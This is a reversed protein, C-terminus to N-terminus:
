NKIIKKARKNKQGKIKKVRKKVLNYSKLM